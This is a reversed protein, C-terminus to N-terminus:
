IYSAIVSSIYEGTCGAEEIKDQDVNNEMFVGLTGYFYIQSAYKSLNNISPSTFVPTKKSEDLAKVISVPCSIYQGALKNNNIDILTSDAGYSLKFDCTDQNKVIELVSPFLADTLVAKAPICSLASNGLCNLVANNQYTSINKLDPSKTTGCDKVTVVVPKVVQNDQPIAVDDQTNKSSNFISTIKSFDFSPLTIKSFISVLWNWSNDSIEQSSKVGSNWFDTIQPKYLYWSVSCALAIIVLIFAEWFTRSSKKEKKVAGTFVPNKVAPNQNQINVSQKQIVPNPSVSSQGQMPIVTRFAENLDIETWGGNNVLDAHVEERTRGKAFEGKIYSILETTIM